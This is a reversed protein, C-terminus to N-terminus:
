AKSAPCKKPIKPQLFIRYPKFEELTGPLSVPRHRLDGPITGGKQSDIEIQFQKPRNKSRIRQFRSPDRKEFRRIYTSEYPIFRRTYFHARLARNLASEPRNSPSNQPQNNESPRTKRTGFKGSYTPLRAKSFQFHAHDSNPRQFLRTAAPFPFLNCRLPTCASM